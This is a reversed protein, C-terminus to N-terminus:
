LLGAFKQQVEGWEVWSKFDARPAVAGRFLAAPSLAAIVGARKRSSRPKNPDSGSLVHINDNTLPISVPRVQGTEDTPEARTAQLATRRRARAAADDSLIHAISTPLKYQM